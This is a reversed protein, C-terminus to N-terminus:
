LFVMTILAADYFDSSLTHAKLGADTLTISVGLMAEVWHSPLEVRMSVTTSGDVQCAINLEVDALPM